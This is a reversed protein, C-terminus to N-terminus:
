GRNDQGWKMQGKIERWERSVRPRMARIPMVMSGTTIAATIGELGEGSKSRWRGKELDDDGDAEAHVNGGMDRVM